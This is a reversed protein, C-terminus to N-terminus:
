FYHCSFYSLISKLIVNLKGDYNTISLYQMNALCQAKSSQINLELTKKFLIDIFINQKKFLWFCANIQLTKGAKPLM